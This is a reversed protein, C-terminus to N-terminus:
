RCRPPYNRGEQLARVSVGSPIDAVREITVTLSACGRGHHREGLAPTASTAVLSLAVAAATAARRIVISM